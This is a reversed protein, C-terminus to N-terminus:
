GLIPVYVWQFSTVGRTILSQSESTTEWKYFFGSYSYALCSFKAAEGQLVTVNRPQIVIRPCIALYLHCIYYLVYM